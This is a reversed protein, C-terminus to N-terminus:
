GKEKLIPPTTGLARWDKAAALIGFIFAGAVAVSSIDSLEAGQPLTQLEVLMIGSFPILWALFASMFSTKMM